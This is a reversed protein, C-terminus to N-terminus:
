EKVDSVKSYDPGKTPVLKLDVITKAIRRAWISNAEGNPHYSPVHRVRFRTANPDFLESIKIDALNVDTLAGKNVFFDRDNDLFFCIFPTHKEKALAAMREIILTLIRRQCEHRELQDSTYIMGSVVRKIFSCLRSRRTFTFDAAPMHEELRGNRLEVWPSPSLLPIGSEPTRVNRQMQGSWVSYIILDYRERELIDRMGLYCQYPGYGGVAYNDFRIDPFLQNLKWCYTEEDKIGTGFTYSCGFVAAKYPRNDELSPRSRRQRNKWTHEVVNPDEESIHDTGSGQWGVVNHTDVQPLDYHKLYLYFEGAAFAIVSFVIFLAARRAWSKFRKSM